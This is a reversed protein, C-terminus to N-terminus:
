KREALWRRLEQLDESSLGSDSCLTKVLNGISNGAYRKLFNGTEISLYEAESILPTYCRERGIRESSLYGKETLRALITLLTQPKWSKDSSLDEMMVHTTVPPESHWIIKMVAFESDPLRKATNKM